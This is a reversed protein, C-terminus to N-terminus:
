NDLYKKSLISLKYSDLVNIFLINHDSTAQKLFELVMRNQKYKQIKKDIKLADEIVGKLFIKYLEEYSAMNNQKFIFVYNLNNRVKKSLMSYDQGSFITSFNSNRLVCFLKQVMKNNKNDIEDDMIILIQLANETKSQFRALQQIPLADFEEMGVVSAKKINKIDNYADIHISNSFMFILDFNKAIKPIFYNLFTSKGSKTSGILAATFPPNYFNTNKLNNIVDINIDETM